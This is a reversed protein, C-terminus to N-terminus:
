SCGCTKKFGKHKPCIDFPRSTPRKPTVPSTTLTVPKDQTTVSDTVTVGRNHYVRCKPGCYKSTVRLPTYEKNCQLCKAM